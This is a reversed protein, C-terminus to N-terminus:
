DRPWGCRWLYMRRGKGKIRGYFDVLQLWAKRDKAIKHQERWTRLNNM